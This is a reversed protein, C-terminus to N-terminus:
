ISKLIQKEGVMRKSKYLDQLRMYPAFAIKHNDLKKFILFQIKLSM